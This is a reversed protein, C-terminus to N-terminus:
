GLPSRSSASPKRQACEGRGDDDVAVPEDGAGFTADLTLRQGGLAAFAARHSAILLVRADATARLLKVLAAEGAADLHASPEDLLVVPAPSALARAVGIRATEGSSCARGGPGLLAESPLAALQRDGLAELLRRARGVREEDRADDPALNEALTGPLLSATAPAYASPWDAPGPPADSLRREGYRVHGGAIPSLGALAALLTSKGAGPPGTIWLPSGAAAEADIGQTARPGGHALVLRELRLRALPWPRPPTPRAPTPATPPSRPADRADLDALARAAIEASAIAPASEGLARIPRYTSVLLVIVSVLTARAAGASPAFLSVLLSIAVTAALENGGSAVLQGLSARRTAEAARRDLADVRDLAVASAGYSAWLGASALVDRSADISAVSSAIARAFSARLRRRLAGVGLGFPLLLLLLGATLPLDVVAALVALTALSLLARRRARGAVVGAALREPASIAIGLSGATPRALAAALWRRRARRGVDNAVRSENAAVALQAVLRVTVLMLATYALVRPSTAIHVHWPSRSMWTMGPPRIVIETAGGLVRVLLSALLALLGQALAAVLEAFAVVVPM